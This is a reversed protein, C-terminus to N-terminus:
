LRIAAQRLSSLSPLVLSPFTEAGSMVQTDESIASATDPSLFCDAKPSSTSTLNPLTCEAVEFASEEFEQETSSGAPARTVDDTSPLSDCKRPSSPVWTGAIPESDATCNIDRTHLNSASHGMAAMRERIGSLGGPIAYNIEIAPVDGVCALLAGGPENEENQCVPKGHNKVANHFFGLSLCSCKVMGLPFTLQRLFSGVNALIAFGSLRLGARRLYSASAGVNHLFPNSETAEHCCGQLSM